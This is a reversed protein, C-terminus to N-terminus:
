LMIKNREGYWEENKCVLKQVVHVSSAPIILYDIAMRALVPTSGLREKWFKFVNKVASHLMVPEALYIEVDSSM